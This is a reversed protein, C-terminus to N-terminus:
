KKVQPEDYLFDDMVVLDASGGNSVDKKGAALASSGSVIQVRTVTNNPFGVGLFSFGSNAKSPKFVGLSKTGSFYEVTTSNADDVDAFIAGFGHVTADTNTGPVKFTVVTVNTGAPSFLRKRSFVKFQSAYSADISEFSTSDVRFSNAANNLILGRKRAGGLAPDFSGFFDGPFLNNNTFNPPVADWNVERRGGSAGPNANLPDGAFLRFANLKGLIAASDGAASFVIADSPPQPTEDNNDKSCSGLLFAITLSIFSLTVTKKM